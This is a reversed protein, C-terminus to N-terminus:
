RAGKGLYTALAERLPTMKLGLKREVEAPDALADMTIFEVAYPTLPRGPMFQLISAALKMVSKPASLLLRRKGAVQLATRVIERMTLVEPGGIEFTQNDATTNDASEAVARVVDDIFVPQLRQKGVAGILPVFPLFRAMRLFRNLSRDEPGYIWSPRLIVYPIGSERVATEARWKARFWHYKADASAGAGSLYIYRKVGANKAAQVLHDTGKADIEDFTYGRGPNEIPSTPFQQCGAVVDVGQLATKLSGTDRVDGQRYRIDLGPFCRRAKEVDRTLVAVDNGRRALERVIGGGVFGTGGAVLIM